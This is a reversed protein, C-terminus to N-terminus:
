KIISKSKGKKYLTEIEDGPKLLKADKVLKGNHTTISYGRNLVNLPNNHELAQEFSILAHKMETINLKLDTRFSYERNNLEDSKRRIFTKTNQELYINARELRVKQGTFKNKVASIYKSTIGSLKKDEQMVISALLKNLRYANEKLADKNWDIIRDVSFSNSCVSIIQKETQLLENETYAVSDVLFEAVATPTKLRTHAVVDVVSDDQEHGIGTLVPM